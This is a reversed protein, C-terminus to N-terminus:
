PEHSRKFTPQGGLERLRDLLRVLCWTDRKCYDLLQRRVNEREDPDLLDTTLLLRALELTAEGGSAITLDDYSVEPILAPAVAKLSFSGNFAPHYVGDRVMPLLDVLREAIAVLAPELDAFVSALHLICGREFSANYALVARADRCAEILRVAVERRPDSLGLALWERHVVRGDERRVHCSLQAPVQEWPRCGDWVPIARSVTEFDLFALPERIAELAPRLTPEVVVQAERIARRQRAHMDSLEFDDPIDPITTVNLDQLAALKKARIGHLTTVHHEPLPEWCRGMFPCPEPRRCHDGIPVDPLPGAIARREAAIAEPLTPLIEEVQATVDVRTFLNSLDPFRCERNLHMVEARRVALGSRRAVHVQLAIDLLHEPEVSTNQKVEIVAFGEARRELIDVVVVVGDAALAAEYLVPAGADLARRTLEVRESLPIFPTGVLEGGPVYTRALKGVERGQDFRDLLMNSPRLEPADREHVLWWLYKHCRLGTLFQSKSLLLDHAPAM